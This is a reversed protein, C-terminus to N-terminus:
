KTRTMVVTGLGVWLNFGSGPVHDESTKKKQIIELIGFVIVKEFM